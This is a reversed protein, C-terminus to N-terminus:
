AGGPRTARVRHRTRVTGAGAPVISITGDVELVAM